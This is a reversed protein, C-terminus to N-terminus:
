MKALVEKLKEYERKSQASVPEMEVDYISVLRDYDANKTLRAAILGNMVKYPYSFNHVSLETPYSNLLLDVREITHNQEVYPVVYRNIDSVIETAIIPVDEEKLIVFEKDITNSRRNGNDIYDILSGLSTALCETDEFSEPGKESISNYIAAMRNIRVGWWVKFIIKFGYNAHLFYVTATGDPVAKEFQEKKKNFQFGSSGISDGISDFLSRKIKKFIMFVM